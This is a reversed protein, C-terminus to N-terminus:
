LIPKERTDKKPKSKHYHPCDKCYDCRYIYSEYVKCKYEGWVPDFLANVCTTYDGM